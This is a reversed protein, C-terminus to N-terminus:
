YYYYLGNVQPPSFWALTKSDKVIEPPDHDSIRLGRVSWLEM